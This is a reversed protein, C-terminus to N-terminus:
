VAPPLTMEGTLHLAGSTPDHVELRVGGAALPGLRLGIRGPLLVPRRFAASVTCAPAPPALAEAAALARALTWMGHAIPAKFGLVRAAIGWIHHPNWDGSVSAYRRGTDAPVEVELELAAEIADVPPRSLRRPTGSRARSLLTAVGEWAVGGAADAVMACDVEYGRGTGRIEELTCRLDLREGAELPRVQRIHQRVHVLGLPSFPFATALAMEVLMPQFLIEPFAAPVAPGPDYGCVERFAAVRVPDIAVLERTSVLARAGTTALVGQRKWLSRWLALAVQSVLSRERVVGLALPPGALPVLRPAEVVSELLTGM